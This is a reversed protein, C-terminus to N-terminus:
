RLWGPMIGQRRADDRFQANAREARTVELEAAPIQDLTVQLESSQYTFQHAHYGLAVFQEIQRKLLEARDRLLAVNEKARRITEEHARAANRWSWEDGKDAAERPEVVKELDLAQAPTGSHNQELERLLRDREAPSVKLKRDQDITALVSRTVAARTAEMDVEALPISYLTGSRFIIRGREERIPGDVDFRTGNRLILTTTLIPQPLSAATAFLLIALALM